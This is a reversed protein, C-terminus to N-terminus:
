KWGEENDEYNSYDPDPHAIKGKYLEKYYEQNSLLSGWNYGTGEHEEITVFIANYHDKPLNKNIKYSKIIAIGGAFDDQGHSIYSSSPVYIKDGVKPLILTNPTIKM